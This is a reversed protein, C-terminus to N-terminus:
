RTIPKVQWRKRGYGPILAGGATENSINSSSTSDLIVGGDNTILM